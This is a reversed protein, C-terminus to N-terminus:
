PGKGGSTDQKVFPGIKIIQPFSVKLLTPMYILSLLIQAEGKLTM